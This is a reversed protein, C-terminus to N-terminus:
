HSRGHRLIKFQDLVEMRKDYSKIRFAAHLFDWDNQADNMVDDDEGSYTRIIGFVCQEGDENIFTEIYGVFPRRDQGQSIKKYEAKQDKPIYGLIKEKNAEIVMVANKDYRNEPENRLEGSIPGIDSEDCYKSIGAIRFSEYESEPYTIIPDVLDEEQHVADQEASETNDQSSSMSIIIYILILAAVILIIKM